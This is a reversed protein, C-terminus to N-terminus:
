KIDHEKIIVGSLGDEFPKELQVATIQDTLNEMSTTYVRVYNGTLGEWLGEKNRTEWLVETQRGVMAELYAQHGAKDIQEAAQVRENKVEEPVQDERAAAPTGKRRSYPFVHIKAFQCEQAFKLSQAFDEQTEGPFGVILDTTISIDPIQQRINTLLDRFKASDYPRHMATLTKDAGAQLPLHLHRCFRKDQAMLKLLDQDVEISELSGLRLRALGQVKLAAQVADALKPGSAQEKGYAGLHIGILVVEKYGQAVLQEVEATISTLARSRLPGRAYPIICYACFQNCGEQIKLFARTMKADVGATMEEFPSDKILEHVLNAVGPVKHGGAKAVLEVINKRDQTGIILDVGEIAAVEEPATQPYCGTVVVLAQPNQRVARHIIKRSKSQGMNTVVCTNVLYVDAAQTFPVISYGAKVFLKEMSATAAQNVKCGLTYFAIKPM